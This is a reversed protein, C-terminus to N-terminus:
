GAYQWFESQGDQYGPPGDSTGALCAECTTFVSGAEFNQVYGCPVCIYMGSQLVADGIKYLKATVPVVIM